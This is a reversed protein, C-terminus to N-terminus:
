DARPLPTVGLAVTLELVTAPDELRDGYLERLQGMRYRVTQPHVFLAAAITTAAARTCCGPRAPDRRAERRDGPRLGALPALM